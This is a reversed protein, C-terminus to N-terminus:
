LKLGDTKVMFKRQIILLKFIIGEEKTHHVEEKKCSTRGRGPPLYYLCGRSGTKPQEPLMWQLM